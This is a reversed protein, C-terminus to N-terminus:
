LEGRPDGSGADGSRRLQVLFQRVDSDDYLAQAAGAGADRAFAEALAEPARHEAGFKMELRPHAEEFGAARAM